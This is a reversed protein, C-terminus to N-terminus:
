SWRRCGSRVGDLKIDVRVADMIRRKRTTGVEADKWGHLWQGEEPGRDPKM